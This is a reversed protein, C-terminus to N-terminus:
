ASWFRSLFGLTARNRCRTGGGIGIIGDIVVMRQDLPFCMSRAPFTLEIVPQIIKQRSRGRDACPHDVTRLPDLDASSNSGIKRDQIGLDCRGGVISVKQAFASAGLPRASVVLKQDQFGLVIWCCLRSICSSCHILGAGRWTAWSVPVTRKGLSGARRYVDIHTGRPDGAVYFLRREADMDQARFHPFRGERLNILAVAGYERGKSNHITTLRVARDPSAFLGLDEITLNALDVHQGQMDAKMEQVSAYFLGAHAHDILGDRQLIAGTAQSMGDLWQVAAVPKHWALHKACCDCRLSVDWTRLSKLVSEAPPM